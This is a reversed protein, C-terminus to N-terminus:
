ITDFLFTTISNISSHHQQHQSALRSTQSATSAATISNISSHHQLDQSELAKVVLGLRDYLQPVRIEYSMAEM